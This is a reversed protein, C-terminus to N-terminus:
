LPSKLINNLLRGAGPKAGETPMGPSMNKARAQALAKQASPPLGGGTSAAQPPTPPAAQKFQEPPGPHNLAPHAEGATALQQNVAEFPPALETLKGEADAAKIEDPTVYFSNFLVGLDGGLSRYRGIGAKTLSSLNDMILKAEPLKAFTAMNASLAPPQGAILGQLAPIKLLSDPMTSTAPGDQATEPPKVTPEVEVPAPTQAANLPEVLTQAM